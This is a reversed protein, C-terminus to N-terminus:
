DVPSISAFCMDSLPNIDLYILFEQLEIAIFSFWNLFQYRIQISM